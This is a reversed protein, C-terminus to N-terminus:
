LEVFVMDPEVAAEAEPHFIAEAMAALGPKRAMEARTAADDYIGPARGTRDGVLDLAIQAESKALDVPHFARQFSQLRGKANM